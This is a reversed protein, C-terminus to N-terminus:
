QDFLCNLALVFLIGGLTMAAIILITLILLGGLTTAFWFM